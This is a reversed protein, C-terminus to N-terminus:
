GRIVQLLREADHDTNYLHFGARLRGARLATRVGDLRAADFDASLRVSVVPSDGEEMGLGARVLNALRLDHEHITELGVEHLFQVSAATGVWSLWAPSLDLRSTDAALRLPLGYISDWPDEGSYWGAYLAQVRELLRPRVTMFATGRPCLLWKYGGTVTIDYDEARFPLWGAAQTTDALTLAGAAGAADRIAPADAVRGDASQVLSFAVMATGPDVADALRELPATVVELGLDARTLFPFVVSTFEGEPVLVRSRPELLTVALAVLASVQAGVAVQTPPVGVLTAFSARADEVYRDYGPATATGAQWEALAATVAEVTRQPPLGLSATDLYGAAGPFQDSVRLDMM